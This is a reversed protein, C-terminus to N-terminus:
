RWASVLGGALLAVASVAYRERVLVSNSQRGDEMMDNDKVYSKM